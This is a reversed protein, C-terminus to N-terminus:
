LRETVPSKRVPKELQDWSSLDKGLASELQRNYPSYFDHLSKMAPSDRDVIQKKATKQFKYYTGKLASKARPSFLSNAFKKVVRNLGPYRISVTENERPLKQEEASLDDLGFFEALQRLQRDQDRILEEFILVKINSEPIRQRWNEYHDVYQGQGLSSALAYFEREEYFRDRFNQVGGDLLADVFEQFEVPEKLACRTLCIYEFYSLLRRAPNRFIVCVKTDSGAFQELATQQYYYHTTSDLTKGQITRPFFNRYADPGDRHFNAVPNLLPNGQDMFFFTEKPTSPCVSNLGSLWAHLSSTGCKPAGIISIDPLTNMSEADRYNSKADTALFSDVAM